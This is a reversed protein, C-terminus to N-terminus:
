SYERGYTNEIARIRLTGWFIGKDYAEDYIILKGYYINTRWWYRGLRLGLVGKPLGRWQFIGSNVDSDIEEKTNLEISVRTIESIEAVEQDAYLRLYNKNNSNGYVTITPYSM